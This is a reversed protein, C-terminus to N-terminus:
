FFYKHTACRHFPCISKAFILQSLFSTKGWFLRKKRSYLHLSLTHMVTAHTGNHSTTPHYHPYSSGRQWMGPKSWWVGCGWSWLGFHSSNGPSESSFGGPSYFSFESGVGPWNALTPDIHSLFFYIMESQKPTLFMCCALGGGKRGEWSYWFGKSSGSARRRFGLFTRGMKWRRRSIWWHWEMNWIARADRTASHSWLSFIPSRKTAETLRFVYNQIDISQTQNWLTIWWSMSQLTAKNLCLNRTRKLCYSKCSDAVEQM